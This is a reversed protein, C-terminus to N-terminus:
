FLSYGIATLGVLACYVAFWLLSGRKVLNIMLKCAFTGTVFSALFGAILPGAGISLDEGFEGSMLGLLNVGIIPVLVMLFSFSAVEERKVGLLLGTSITTGSRSLGPFVAIAQSIGILFADRMTLTRNGSKAFHSFALLSATVLLMCGVFLLNGSFLQEMEDKFFIGVLLVPIMSVIINVAFTFEPSPRFRFFGRLIRGIENWFVVITSLVTGGHVVTAFALNEEAEVGLIVNAIELHGSSSVPLFETLGQVIGLIIAEILTM